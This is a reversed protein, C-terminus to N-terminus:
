IWYYTRKIWGDKSVIILELNFGPINDPQYLWGEIENM